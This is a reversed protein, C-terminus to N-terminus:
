WAEGAHLWAWKGVGARLDSAPSRSRRAAGAPAAAVGWEKLRRRSARPSGKPESPAAQPHPYRRKLACVCTHEAKQRKSATALAPARRAGPRTNPRDDSTDMHAHIRPISTTSLRYTHLQHQRLTGVDYVIIDLVWPRDLCDLLSWVMDTFCKPENLM